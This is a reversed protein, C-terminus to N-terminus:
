IMLNRSFSLTPRSSIAPKLKLNYLFIGVYVTSCDL